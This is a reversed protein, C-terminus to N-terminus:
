AICVPLLELSSAAKLTLALVPAKADAPATVPTMDIPPNPAPVGKANAAVPVLGIQTLSQVKSQVRGGPPPPLLTPLPLSVVAGLMAM